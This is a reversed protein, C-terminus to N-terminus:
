INQVICYYIASTTKQSKILTLYSSEFSNSVLYHYIFTKVIICTCVRVHVYVCACVCWKAGYRRCMDQVAKKIKGFSALELRKQLM